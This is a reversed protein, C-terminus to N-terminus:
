KHNNFMEEMFESANSIGNDTQYGKIMVGQNQADM